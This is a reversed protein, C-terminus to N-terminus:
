FYFFQPCFFGAFKSVHLLPKCPTTPLLMCGHVYVHVRDGSIPLICEIHRWYDLFAKSKWRGQTTVMDPPVGHLLLKTTSGIHFCHGSLSTLNSTKWIDNCHTLFWTKTMPSWGQPTEFTFLPADAPVSANASLHHLLADYPNTLNDIKTVVIDESDTHATKSWPIHFVAFQVNSSTSFKRIATSCSVHRLANSSGVSPIVLEGLRCCSWFAICAVCYVASDFSNSFDLSRYLAHMHDISVPPRRACKLSTPIVKSLRAKACKLISHGHWPAGNYQHWFHLGALWSDATTEAVKGAWSTIFAALLYESAPLCHTKPVSISDCFQHFHLLGAGYNERTKAEVSLLMVNLLRSAHFSDSHPASWLRLHDQALVHPRFSSPSNSPLPKRPKHIKTVASPPVGLAPNKKLTERLLAIAAVTSADALDIIPSSSM